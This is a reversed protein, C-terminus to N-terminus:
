RDIGNHLSHAITTNTVLATAPREAFAIAGYSDRAGSGDASCTSGASQYDDGAYMVTAHDIVSAASPVGLFQIGTWDGRAPTMASSTFEIPDAPTGRAILTGTQEVELLNQPRFQMTVGPDITLTAAPGTALGITFRGADGDEGFLYPVGRDHITANRILGSVDPLVEIVDRTNGTY